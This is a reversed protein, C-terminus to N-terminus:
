LAPLPSRPTCPAGALLTELCALCKVSRNSDLCPICQIGAAAVEAERAADLDRGLAWLAIVGALVAVMAAIAYYTGSATM